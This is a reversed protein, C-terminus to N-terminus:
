LIDFHLHEQAIEIERLKTSSNVFIECWSKDAEVAEAHEEDHEVYVCVCPHMRTRVCMYVHLCM